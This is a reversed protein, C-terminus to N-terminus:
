EKLKALQTKEALRLNEARTAVKNEGLIGPWVAKLEEPTQAADIGPDTTVDRLAAKQLAINRKKDQDADEDARQYEIDLADLLPARAVRMAEKHIERAKLIDVDPKDRGPTDKWANRFYCDTDEDMYDNPVFRWSVPMKWGTRPGGWVGGDVYKAITTDVVEPTVERRNFPIPETIPPVQKLVPVHEGKDNLETIRRVGNREDDDPERYECERIRLVTVGGDVRTIAVAVTDPLLNM